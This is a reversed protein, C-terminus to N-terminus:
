FRRGQRRRAAGIAIAALVLLTLASPEPISATGFEAKLALFDDFDVAGDMTLDGEQYTGGVFLHEVLLNADQADVVGDLNFDGPLPLDVELTLAQLVADSAAYALDRGDVEIVLEGRDGAVFEHTFVVGRKLDNLKPFGAGALMLPVHLRDVATEGDIRISLARDCCREAFLLQLKYAAGPIVGQLRISIEDPTEEDVESIAAGGIIRALATDNPGDGFKAADGWESEFNEALFEVGGRRHSTFLADRVKTLEPGGASVAFQFVGDLDLGEGADGGTFVGLSGFRPANPPDLLDFRPPDYKEYLYERVEALEPESLARDYVILEALEADSFAMDPSSGVLTLAGPATRPTASKTLDLGNTFFRTSEGDSTADSVYISGTAAALQRGVFGTSELAVRGDSLGLAWDGTLNRVLRGREAGVYRDVVFATYKEGLVLGEPFYMNRSEEASFRVARFGTTADEVWQPARRSNAQIAHSGAGSKDAWAVLSKGFESLTTMEEDAFVTEADSADLWLSLGDTIPTGLAAEASLVLALIITAIARPRAGGM